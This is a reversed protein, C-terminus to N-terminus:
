ISSKRYIICRVEVVMSDKGKEIFFGYWAKKKM